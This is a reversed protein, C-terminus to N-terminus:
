RIAGPDLFGIEAQDGARYVLRRKGEVDEFLETVPRGQARLEALQARFEPGVRRMMWRTDRPASKLYLYLRNLEM